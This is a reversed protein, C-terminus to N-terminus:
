PLFSQFLLPEKITDKDGTFYGRPGGDCPTDPQTSIATIKAKVEAPTADPFIAKYLAAAGAVHPAAMSTGSEIAYGTGNYTSFINVGPAAIKVVPGFNSFYAMTDDTVNGDFQKLVPGVGGCKGDSDGIASVTLANPNNAPSTAAADKGYNGAATVVTVGAEIAKDIINNLAPSNHNELSLNVVDIEDAHKIVYDMGKLQDSVKCDGEADCVKIAWIRAGPAMGVVGLENDKAAAIGAVHSGHGLEDDATTINEIVSINRYVNLDPHSLSVGTDLIAIDVDAQRQQKQGNVASTQIIGSETNSNDLDSISSNSTTNSSNNNSDTNSSGTQSIGSQTKITPNSDVAMASAPNMINYVTSNSPLSSDSTSTAIADETAATSNSTNTANAASTGGASIPTIGSSGNVLPLTRTIGFPMTQNWKIVVANEQQLQSTQNTQTQQDNNSGNTQNLLGSQSSSSNSSVINSSITKNNNNNNNNDSRTQDFSDPSLEAIQSSQGKTTDVQVVRFNADRLVPANPPLDTVVIDNTAEIVGIINAGAAELIRAAEQL